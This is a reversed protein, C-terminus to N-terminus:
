FDNYLTRIKLPNITALVMGHTRIPVPVGGFGVPLRLMLADVGM